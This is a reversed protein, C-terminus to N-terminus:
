NCPVSSASVASHPAMVSDYPWRQAGLEYRSCPLTGIGCAHPADVRVGAAPAPCGAHDSGSSFADAFVTSDPM